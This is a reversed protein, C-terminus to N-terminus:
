KWTLSYVVCWNSYRGLVEGEEDLLRASVIIVRPVESWKQRTHVGPVEGQFLETSSNPALIIQKSWHNTWESHLDFSTVDLTAKKEFLTSNTGWIELITDITFKAASRYDPYTEKEKRTM